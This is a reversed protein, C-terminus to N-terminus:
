GHRMITQLPPQTWLALPDAPQTDFHVYILVTPGGPAPRWEGYVVPHGGTPLLCVGELGAARLRAAVWEGAREVDAAHESLSSISPIRLFDLLENLARDRHEQLYSEWPEM